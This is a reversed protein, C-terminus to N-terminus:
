IERRAIEIERLAVRVWRVFNRHWAQLRDVSYAIQKREYGERDLFRASNTAHEIQANQPPDIYAELLDALSANVRRLQEYLEILDRQIITFPEWFDVFDDQWVLPEGLEASARRAHALTEPFAAAWTEYKKLQSVAQGLYKSAIERSAIRDRSGVAIARCSM